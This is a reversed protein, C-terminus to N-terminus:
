YGGWSEIGPSVGLWCEVREPLRDGSAVFRTLRAHGELVVLRKPAAFSDAVLVIPEVASPRLWESWGMRQIADDPRRSGATVELWYGWNIYLVDRLESPTLEVRCWEVHPPFGEFYGHDPWGRVIRLLEIPDDSGADDTAAAYSDSFRLSTSEARVWSTAVEVWPVRDRLVRM